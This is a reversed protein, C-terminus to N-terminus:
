INLGLKEQQELTLNSCDKQWWEIMGCDSDDTHQNKTEQYIEQLDLNEQDEKKSRKRKNKESVLFGKFSAKDKFGLDSGYKYYLQDITDQFVFSRSFGKLPAKAMMQAYLHCFDKICENIIKERKLFNEM